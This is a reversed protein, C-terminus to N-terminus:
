RFLIWFAPRQKEAKIVQMRVRYNSRLMQVWECFTPKARPVGVLYSEGEVINWPQWFTTVYAQRLLKNWPVTPM